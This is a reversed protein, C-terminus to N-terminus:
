YDSKIMKRVIRFVNARMVLILGIYIVMGVLIELIMMLWTMPLDLNLWLVVGFMIIGSLFYKYWDAFLQRFSIQKRVAFLQYATVSLESIVTAVISGIVGFLLILPINIIINVISGVTVSITFQKTQKTPLLYQIGIANSWAILVIVISEIMMLPIVIM